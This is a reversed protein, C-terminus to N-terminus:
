LCRRLLLIRPPRLPLLLIRPHSHPHLLPLLPRRRAAGVAAFSVIPTFGRFVAFVRFFYPKARHPLSRRSVLPKSQLKCLFPIHIGRIRKGPTNPFRTLAEPFGM